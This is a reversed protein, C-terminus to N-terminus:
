ILSTLCIYDIKQILHKDNINAHLKDTFSYSYDNNKLAERVTFDLDSVFLSLLEKTHELEENKNKNILEKIDITM